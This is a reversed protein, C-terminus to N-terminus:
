TFSCILIREEAQAEPLRPEIANVLMLLWNQNRSADLGKEEM